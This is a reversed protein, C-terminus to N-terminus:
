AHPQPGGAADPVATLKDPDRIIDIATIWGADVTLSVVSLVDDSDHIVLGPGGNVLTLRTSKPPRRAFGVLLRAGPRAAPRARSPASRAATPAGFSM